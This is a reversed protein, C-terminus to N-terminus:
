PEIKKTDDILWRDGYVVDFTTPQKNIYSIPNPKTIEKYLIALHDPRYENDDDLFAIYEGKSIVIGENKPRTDCGFNKQRKFYRIRPDKFSSVIDDTNDKSGDNVIILEFDTYSQNLVSQIAKKLRVARNFTTIIVSIM